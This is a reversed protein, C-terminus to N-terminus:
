KPGYITGADKFYKFELIMGLRVSISFHTRLTIFVNTTWLEKV